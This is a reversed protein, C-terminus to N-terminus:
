THHTLRETTDSEKCDWPSYGALRRQGNFEGPLFAPIPQWARRWPIKGVWPHFRPPDGVNCALWRSCDMPICLTPCVQTVRVKTEISLLIDM